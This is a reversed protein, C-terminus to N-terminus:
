SEEFRDRTIRLLIAHGEAITQASILGAQVSEADHGKLATMVAIEVEALEEIAAGEESSTQSRSVLLALLFGRLMLLVKRLETPKGQVTYLLEGTNVLDTLAEASCQDTLWGEPARQVIVPVSRPKVVLELTEGEALGAVQAAARTLAPLPTVESTTM